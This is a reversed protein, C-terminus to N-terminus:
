RSEEGKGRGEEDSAFSVKITTGRIADVLRLAADRAGIASDYDRTSKAIGIGYEDQIIFIWTELRRPVETVVIRM